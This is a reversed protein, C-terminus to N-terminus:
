LQIGLSAQAGAIQSEASAVEARARLLQAQLQASDIYAVEQDVYVLDGEQLVVDRLRGAIRTAIDVQVAEIRGNGFAIGQPVPDVKREEIFRYGFVALIALVIGAIPKRFRKIAFSM